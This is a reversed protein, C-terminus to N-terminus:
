AVKYCLKNCYKYHCNIFVHCVYQKHLKIVWSPATDVIIYVYMDICMKKFQFFIIMSDM